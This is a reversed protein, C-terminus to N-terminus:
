RRISPRQNTIGRPLTPASMHLRRQGRIFSPSHSHHRNNSRHLPTRIRQSFMNILTLHRPPQSANILKSLRRSHIRLRTHIRQPRSPPLYHTPRAAALQRLLLNDSNLRMNKLHHRIVYTNNHLSITAMTRRRLMHHPARVPIHLSRLSAFTNKLRLPRRSNPIRPRKANSENSPM